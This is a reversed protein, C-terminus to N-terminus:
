SEEASGGRRRRRRMRGGGEGPGSGEGRALGREFAPLHREQSARRLREFTLAVDPYDHVERMLRDYLARNELEAEVGARCAEELSGPAAVRGDWEDAPIPLEYKEYLRVLAEIHRGESEVINSFPRVDGFAQLV